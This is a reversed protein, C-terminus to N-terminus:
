AVSPATEPAFSTERAKLHGSILGAMKNWTIDWSNFKLFEDVRALWESRDRALAAGTCAVFADPTDAIYVLDREGYPRVVDRISTSVAPKGAALYEPTKTPSIFRTAENRAFPLMAADWGSLYSPLEKYTKSGLYHINPNKPLSGSEIKVVPGLMIWHWEPRLSAARELLQLDMREDIVGCYGIRPHPIPSQDAPEALEARARVFHSFDISSPFAHVNSHQKRKVEYLSHGGTFVLDALRFLEAEREHLAQPAGKFASLEDMCDYVAVSAKVHKTFGLAMPTYYWAVFDEIEFEKLMCDFLQRQMRESAEASLGPPVHPAIINVGSDEDVFREYRAEGESTLPEEVFFVRFTRAARSLLHQPRQYVFGWRLHSFCVLDRNYTM